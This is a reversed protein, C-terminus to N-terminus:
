GEKGRAGRGRRGRACVRGRRAMWVGKGGERSRGRGRVRERADSKSESGGETRREVEWGGGGRSGEPGGAARDLDVSLLRGEQDALQQEDGRGDEGQDMRETVAPAVQPEPVGGDRVAEHGLAQRVEVRGDVVEPVGLGRHHHKTLPLRQM